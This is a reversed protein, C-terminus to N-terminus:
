RGNAPLMDASVPGGAGVFGDPEWASGASPLYCAVALNFRLCAVFWQSPRRKSAPPLRYHAGCTRWHIHRYSPATGEAGGPSPLYGGPVVDGAVGSAAHVSASDAARLAVQRHCTAAGGICWRARRCWRRVCRQWRGVAPLPGRPKAQGLHAPPAATAPSAPQQPPNYTIAAVANGFSTPTWAHLPASPSSDVPPATPAM